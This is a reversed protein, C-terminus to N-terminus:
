GCVVKRERGRFVAYREAQESEIRSRRRSPAIQCSAVAAIEEARFTLAVDRLGWPRVVVLGSPDLPEIVQAYVERGSALTIHVSTGEAALPLHNETSM